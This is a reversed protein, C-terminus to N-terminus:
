SSFYGRKTSKTSQRYQGPTLGNEIRFTKSFYSADGMGCMKSITELTYDTTELLREARRLRLEKLMQMPAKNYYQQFKRAFYSPNLHLFAALEERSIKKELNHNMYNIVTVFRDQNTRLKEPRSPSGATKWSEMLLAVLSTVLSFLYLNREESDQQHWTKELENFLNIFRQNDNLRIVPAIPHLRFYELHSSTYLDLFIYQHIGACEAKESFPLHPLHIMVDGSRAEFTLGNSEMQVVGEKVHSIIWHPVTMNQISLNDYPATELQYLSLELQERLTPIPKTQM